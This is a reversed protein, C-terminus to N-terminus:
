SWARECLLCFKERFGRSAEGAEGCNKKKKKQLNAPNLRLGCLKKFLLKTGLWNFFINLFTYPVSFAHKCLPLGQRSGLARKAPTNEPSSRGTGEYASQPRPGVHWGWLWFRQWLMGSSNNQPRTGVHTTRPHLPLVVLTLPKTKKKLNENRECETKAWITKHM